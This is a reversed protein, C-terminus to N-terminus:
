GMHSCKHLCLDEWSEYTMVDIPIEWTQFYVYRADFASALVDGYHMGIFAELEQLLIEAHEYIYMYRWDNNANKLYYEFLEKLFEKTIISNVWEIKKDRWNCERDYYYYCVHSLIYANWRQIQEESRELKFINEKKFSLPLNPFICRLIDENVDYWNFIELLSALDLYKFETIGNIIHEVIQRSNEMDRAFYKLEEFDGTDALRYDIAYERLENELEETLKKKILEQLTDKNREKFIFSSSSCNSIFDTRLKM